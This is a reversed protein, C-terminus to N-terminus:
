SKDARGMAAQLDSWVKKRNDTTYQRLLFAPHFTPMVDIAPGEPCLGEYRHWTGRLAGIGQKTELLFKTAPAGLAIIVKPLITAIQRRLYDSCCTVEDPTPTRNKPPRCKVINAIYVQERQYGMAEIQKNLLDGARGVFPRGQEDENKGPGEGVFMIAADVNGEGFVTNTRGHCLDCKTCGVVEKDNLTRLVTIKGDHDKNMDITVGAAVPVATIGLLRDTELHQRLIRHSSVTPGAYRRSSFPVLPSLSPGPAHCGPRRSTTRTQGSCTPGDPGLARSSNAM